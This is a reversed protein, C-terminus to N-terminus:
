PHVAPYQLDVPSGRTIVITAACTLHINIITLMPDIIANVALLLVIAAGAPLGLPTLVISIMSLSVVGPAGAGALAALVSLLFIMFLRSFDLPINYLQAMFVAGTTFLIVMSFRCIVICLPVALNILNQPLNFKHGLADFVSPMAAYSNRTSFAIILPDRLDKFTQLFNKQAVASIIASGTLVLFLGALHIIAVFKIMALLIDIGARAIQGALMFFLGLPLIYMALVIVKEFAKFVVETISLFQDAKERPLLGLSLGLVISFFLIQLNKGEGLANFINTPIIMKLFEYIGISTQGGAAGAGSGEVQILVKGLKDLSDHDLRGPNGVVAALIGTLSTFLLGLLFVVVIRRLYFSVERSQLLRGFSTIVAAAMIPIVCMSLFSLYADGLPALRLSLGKNFLGTLIGASMGLIIVWPTKLTEWSLRSRKLDTPLM